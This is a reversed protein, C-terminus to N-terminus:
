CDEEEITERSKVTATWSTLDSRENWPRLATESTPDRGRRGRGCHFALEQMMPVWQRPSNDVVEGSQSDVVQIIKPVAAEECSERRDRTVISSVGARRRDLTEGSEKVQPRRHAEEPGKRRSNAISKERRSNATSKEQPKREGDMEQRGGVRGQVQDNVKFRLIEEAARLLFDRNFNVRM